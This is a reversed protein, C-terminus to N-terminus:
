SCRRLLMQQPKRSLGFRRMLSKPARNALSALKVYAQVNDEELRLAAQVEQIAQAAARVSAREAAEFHSPIKPSIMKIIVFQGGL